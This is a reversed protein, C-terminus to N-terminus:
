AESLNLFKRNYNQTLQDLQAATLGAAIRQKRTERWWRNLKGADIANDVLALAEQLFGSNAAPIPRNDDIADQVAKLPFTEQHKANAETVLRQLTAAPSSKPAAPEQVAAKAKPEGAPEARAELAHQETAVSEAKAEEMEAQADAQRQNWEPDDATWPEGEVAHSGRAVTTQDHAVQGGATVEGTELDVQEQPADDLPNQVTRFGNRPTIDRMEDPTYVGLLVDSCWKRAWARSAYYFQQQDPDDKWLPSNKIRIDKLQPSEYEHPEAEGKFTGFVICKRSQGEGEYRCRLRGKLPARSEIVAHILQSEYALQDNVIYSKRAVAYPAMDWERAQMIVALCIGPEGRLHKPVAQKALAMMKAVEMAQDVTEVQIINGGFRVRGILQRDIKNSIAVEKTEENM